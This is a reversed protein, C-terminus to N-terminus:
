KEITQIGNERAPFEGGDCRERIYYYELPDFIYLPTSAFRQIVILYIVALM